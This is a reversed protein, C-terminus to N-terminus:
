ITPDHSRAPRDRPPAPLHRDGPRASDPGETGAVARGASAHPGFCRGRGARASSGRAPRVHAPNCAESNPRGPRARAPHRAHPDPQITIRKTRSPSAALCPCPAVPRPEASSPGALPPRGGRPPERWRPRDGAGRPGRCGGGGRWSSSQVPQSPLYSSHPLRRVTSAAPSAM